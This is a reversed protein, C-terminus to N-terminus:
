GKCRINGPNEEYAAATYNRGALNIYGRGNTRYRYWSGPDCNATVTVRVMPAPKPGKSKSGQRQWGYWRSRFTTGEIRNSLAQIVYCGSEVRTHIQASTTDSPHPRDVRVGCAGSSGRPQIIPFNQTGLASITAPDNVNVAPDAVVPYVANTHDVTQTVSNGDISFATPLTNGGADIAWANTIGAIEGGDGARVSITGDGNDTVSGGEPVGLEYKFESPAAADDIVSMFRAGDDTPQIVTSTGDDTGEYVTFGEVDRSSEAGNNEISISLQSGDFTVPADPTSPINAPSSEGESTEIQIGPVDIVAAHADGATPAEITFEDALDDIGVGLAPPAVTATLVVCAVTAILRLGATHSM